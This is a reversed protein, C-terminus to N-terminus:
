FGVFAVFLSFVGVGIVVGKQMWAANFTMAGGPTAVTFTFVDAIATEAVSGAGPVM